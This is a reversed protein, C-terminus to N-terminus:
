KFKEKQQIQYLAKRDKRKLSWLNGLGNAPQVPYKSIFDFKRTLFVSTAKTYINTPCFGFFDVQILDASKLIKIVEASDANKNARDSDDFIIIGNESLAELAKKACNARHRGDIVIVDYKEQDELVANEYLLPEPRYRIELNKPSFSHHSPMELDSDSFKDCWKQFWEAKDETSVVKQAREAWFLTSNGCGFEFVKKSAYDFQSLYEIAPYTYWPIPRNNKDVCINEEVTKSFNFENEWIKIFRLFKQRDM